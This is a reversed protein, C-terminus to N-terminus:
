DGPKGDTPKVANLIAKAMELGELAEKKTEYGKSSQMIAKGDEGEVKFRFKKDKDSQIVLVEGKVAKKTDTAKPDEKKPDAAKAKDKAQQALASPSSVTAVTGAGVAFVGALTLNRIWKSM